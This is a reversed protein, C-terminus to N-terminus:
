LTTPAIGRLWPEFRAADPADGAWGSVQAWYMSENRTAHVLFVVARDSEEPLRLVLIEGPRNDLVEAAHEGDPTSIRVSAGTRLDGQVALGEPGVIRPWPDPAGAPLTAFVTVARRPNRGHRALAHAMVDLYMRWGRDMSEHYGDWSSDEPIGSQVLRLRSRGGGLSEITWEELISPGGEGHTGRLLLRRLPEWAEVAADAGMDGMEEWVYRIKGGRGPEVEAKTVFWTAIGEPTTLAWWLTEAPADIEIEQRQTRTRKQVTV